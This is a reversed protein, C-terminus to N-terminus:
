SEKRPLAPLETVYLHNRDGDVPELVFRIGEMGVIVLEAQCEDLWPRWPARRDGWFSAPATKDYAATRSIRPRGITTPEDRELAATSV